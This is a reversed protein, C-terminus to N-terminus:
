LPGLKLRLDFSILTKNKKKTHSQKILLVEKFAPNSELAHLFTSLNKTADTEASIRSEKARQSYYFDTLYIEKPIIAELKNLVLTAEWSKTQVMKNIMAVRHQIDTLQKSSPFQIGAFDQQRKRYQQITKELAVLDQNKKHTEINLVVISVIAIINSLWLIMGIVPIYRGVPHTFNIIAKM